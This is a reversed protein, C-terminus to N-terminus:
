LESNLDIDMGETSKSTKKLNDIGIHGFRRHWTNISVAPCIMVNKQRLLFKRDVVDIAILEEKTSKSRITHTNCCLYFGYDEIVISSLINIPLSPLYYVNELTLPLTTGDLHEADITISGFGIAQTTGNATDFKPLTDSETYTRFLQRDHCLHFYARTDVLQCNKFANSVMVARSHIVLGSSALAAAPTTSSVKSEKAKPKKELFKIWCDIAKHGYKQCHNCNGDFKEKEKENKGTKNKRQSNRNGKLNNVYIAVNTNTTTPLRDQAKDTIDKYLM